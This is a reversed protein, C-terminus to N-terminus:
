FKLSANIIPIKDLSCYVLDDLTISKNPINEEEFEIITDMFESLLEDLSISSDRIDYFLADNLDKKLYYGLVYGEITDNIEKTFIIFLSHKNQVQIVQKGNKLPEYNGHISYLM